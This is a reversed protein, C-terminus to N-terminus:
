VDADNRWTQAEKPIGLEAEIAGALAGNWNGAIEAAEPYWVGEGSWRVTVRAASVEAGLTQAKDLIYAELTEEIVRRDLTDSIERGEATITAAEARYRAMNLAYAPFDFAYLPAVLAAAMVVGCVMRVVGKVPGKPTLETAIACFVAAGTLGLLWSRILEMM